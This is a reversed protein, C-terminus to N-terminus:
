WQGDEIADNDDEDIDVKVEPAEMDECYTVYSRVMVFSLFHSEINHCDQNRDNNWDDNRTDHIQWTKYEYLM